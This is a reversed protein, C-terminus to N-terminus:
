CFPAVVSYKAFCSICGILVYPLVNEIICMTNHHKPHANRWHNAFHGGAMCESFIIQVLEDDRLEDWRDKILGAAGLSNRKM